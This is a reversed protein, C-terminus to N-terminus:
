YGKNTKLNVKSYILQILHTQLKLKAQTLDNLEILYDSTNLIGNDLQSSYTKLIKEKLTILEKDKEILLKYKDIETLEKSNLINLNKNFTEKQIDVINKNLNIVQCDKSIQRWNWINWSIKLGAIYFYDFSNSLMNLGPRGYGTQAFASIYPYNKSKLITQNFDLKIKQLDFLKLEPRQNAAQLDADAILPVKFFANEKIPQNILETLMNLAALKNQKIEILQSQIKITEAKLLDAKASLSIGNKIEEEAKELKVKLNDQQLNIIKEQENFLIVSFFLQNVREKIKYLEIEINQMEIETSIKESHRSNKLFAGDYILQNIDLSTKYMDKHLEPINLNPIKIPIETVDSQYTLQGNLYFQPLWNTNIKNLKLKEIDIFIPRQKNLPYLELAQKYCYELTLSDQSQANIILTTFVFLCTILKKM